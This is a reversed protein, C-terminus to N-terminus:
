WWWMVSWDRHSNLTFTPSNHQFPQWGSHGILLPDPSPIESATGGDLLHKKHLILGVNAKYIQHLPYETPTLLYYAFLFIPCWDCM